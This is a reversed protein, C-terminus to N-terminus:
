KLAPFYLCDCFQRSSCLPCLLTPMRGWTSQPASPRMTHHQSWSPGTGRVLAQASSTSESSHWDRLGRAVRTLTRARGFGYASKLLERTFYLLLSPALSGPLWRLSAPWPMSPDRSEWGCIDSALWEVKGEFGPHLWYWDTWTEMVPCLESGKFESERIQRQKKKSLEFAVERYQLTSHVM